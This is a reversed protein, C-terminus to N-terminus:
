LAKDTSMGDRYPRDETIATFVDAVAMIRSMQPLQDATLSFPYGASNLCEHHCAAYLAIKNLPKVRNLIKYTYFPHRKIISYEEYTLKGPKELIENPVVLKGLDHLYGAIRAIKCENESYGLLYCIADAVAAVGSSHTATYRSRFDIIQSFLIGVKVLDDLDFEVSVLKTKEKLIEEINPYELELWFADNNSAKLFAEMIEPNFKIGKDQEVKNVIDNKQFLIDVNKKILAEIRDALFIINASIVLDNDKYEILDSWYTHHHLIIQATRNFIDYPSLFLYGRLSHKDIDATDYQLTNIRDNITLIGIDHLSSSLLIERKTDESCNLKEAICLSIYSVRLHHNNIDTHLKDLTNSLCTVLDFISFQKSLKM